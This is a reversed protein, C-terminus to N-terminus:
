YYWAPRVDVQLAVGEAALIARVHKATEATRTALKVVTDTPLEEHVLFEAMRRRMRDPDEITNMWWKSGMVQWDVVQDLKTVDAYYKTIAAACNGDSYLWPKGSGIAADVTLVLYVLPDQGDPYTLVQGKSIKYLMPSRPAFYFPVYDAPHGGPPLPVELKRRKAKIDRDGCEVKLDTTLQIASDCQLRGQSLIGPLNEVHTFHYLERGGALVM